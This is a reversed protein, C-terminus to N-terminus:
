STILLIFCRFHCITVSIQHLKFRTQLNNYVTLSLTNHACTTLIDTQNEDTHSVDSVNISPSSNRQEIM